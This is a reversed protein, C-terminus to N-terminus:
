LDDMRGIAPIKFIAACPEKWGNEQTALVFAGGAPADHFPKKDPAIQAHPAGLGAKQMEAAHEGRVSTFVLIRTFMM